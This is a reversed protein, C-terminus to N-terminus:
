GDPRGLVVDRLVAPEGSVHYDRSWRVRAARIRRHVFLGQFGAAGSAGVVWGVRRNAPRTGQKSAKNLNAPKVVSAFTFLALL